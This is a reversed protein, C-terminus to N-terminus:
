SNSSDHFSLMVSFSVIIGVSLVTFDASVSGNIAAMKQKLIYSCSSECLTIVAIVGHCFSLRVFCCVIGYM